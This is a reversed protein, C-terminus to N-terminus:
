DRRKRRSSLGSRPSCRTDDGTADSMRCSRAAELRSEREAQSWGARISATEMRIEQPTPLYFTPEQREGLGLGVAFARLEEETMEVEECIEAITSDGAWLRRVRRKLNAREKAAALEAPTMRRRYPPTTM